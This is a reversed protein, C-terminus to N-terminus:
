RQQTALRIGAAVSVNFGPKPSESQVPHIAPIRRPLTQLREEADKRQEEQEALIRRLSRIETSLPTLAGPFGSLRDKDVAHLQRLEAHWHRVDRLLSDIGKESPGAEEECAVTPMDLCHQLMKRRLQSLQALRASDAGALAVRELRRLGSLQDTLSRTMAARDNRERELSALLSSAQKGELGKDSAM